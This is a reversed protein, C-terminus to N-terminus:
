PRVDIASALVAMGELDPDYAPYGTVRLQADPAADFAAKVEHWQALAAYGLGEAHLCGVIKHWVSHRVNSRVNHRV